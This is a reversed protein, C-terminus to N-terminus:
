IERRRFSLISLTLSALGIDRLSRREQVVLGALWRLNFPADAAAQQRAARLLVADGAWVSSLRLEDVAVAQQQAHPWALM